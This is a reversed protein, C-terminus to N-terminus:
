KPRVTVDIPAGVGGVPAVALRDHFAARFNVEIGGGSLFSEVDGDDLPEVRLVHAGPTLGAIRFEGEEGLAFAGILAGTRPNFAVVHAGVVGRGGMRVRGSVGGTRGRFGDDPYLDSVGAIDDPQLMRDFTRGRGLAIPFMVTASALVRRRNDELQETEGIASHGLGIFHGVEHTAISQLDFREPDGAASTSWDFATNFFVDSEVVTGTIDDVVFTTAGLVRDMDPRDLFGFVSLDDDELPPASTFGVFQFGVSASPVAEWTAFARAVAAQLETSSVTTPAGRDSAFWRIRPVDWRLLVTEGARSTSLHLYAHSPSVSGSVVCGLIALLARRLANV